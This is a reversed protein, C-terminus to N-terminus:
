TKLSPYRGSVVWTTAPRPAGVLWTYRMWWSKMTPVTLTRRRLRASIRAAPMSTVAGSLWSIKSNWAWMWIQTDVTSQGLVGTVSGIVELPEGTTVRRGVGGGGPM